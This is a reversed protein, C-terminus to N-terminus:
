LFIIGRHENLLKCKGLGNVCFAAPDAAVFVTESSTSGRPKEATQKDFGFKDTIQISQVLLMDDRTPTKAERM